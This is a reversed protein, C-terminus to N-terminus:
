LNRKVGSCLSVSFTMRNAALRWSLISGHGANQHDDGEEEGGGAAVVVGDVLHHLLRSLGVGGGGVGGGGVRGQGVRGQGVRGQGVRRHGVTGHGVAGHGVAGHGVAGHGVAIQGVAIQGVRLGGVAIQGVRLGGVAIQGVRLGGVAIQGVHLGGVAIQGVRLGGVAIQGVRLGGVRGQGVTLQGVAGQGVAVTVPDRVHLVVARVHGVGVLAIQVAVAQAVEAVRVAVTVVDAVVDVLAGVHGPRQRVGAARLDRVGALLDVARHALDALVARADHLDTTLTQGVAGLAEGAAIRALAQRVPVAVPDRVRRVVAGVGGVGTLEVRVAVSGAVRAVTVVVVVADAVALVVARPHGVGILEVRVTVAQAVRAIRVVVVVADVIPHVLAGEVRLGEVAELVLVAAGVVIDVRRRLALVVRVAGFALGATHPTVQVDAQGHCADVVRRTRTTRAAVETRSQAVDTVHGHRRGEPRDQRRGTTTREGLLHVDREGGVPVGQRVCQGRAPHADELHVVPVGVAHVDPHLRVIVPSRETEGLALRPAVLTDDAEVAAAEREPRVERRDPGTGALAAVGTPALLRTTRGGGKTVDNGAVHCGGLGLAHM